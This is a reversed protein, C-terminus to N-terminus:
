DICCVLLKIDMSRRAEIFRHLFEMLIHTWGMNSFLTTSMSNINSLLQLRMCFVELLTYLPSINGFVYSDFKGTKVLRVYTYHCGMRTKLQTKGVLLLISWRKIFM